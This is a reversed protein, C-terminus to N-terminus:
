GGPSTPKGTSGWREAPSSSEATMTSRLQDGWLTGLSAAGALAGFGLLLMMRWEGTHIRPSSYTPNPVLFLVVTVVFWAVVPAAALPLSGTLRYALRPLFWCAAAAVLSTIPFPVAGLYVPLFFFCVVAVAIGILVLWGVLVLDIWSRSSSGTAPDTGATADTDVDVDAGGVPPDAPPISM